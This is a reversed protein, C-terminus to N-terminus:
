TRQSQLLADRARQIEDKPAGSLHLARLRFVRDETDEAPTSVLWQCVQAVRKDARQRQEDTAFSKLGRLAVFSTTFPSQETPPRHAGSKWHNSDHQYLLLYEAVAATTEDPKWGGRDLTWLAYGATDAQGGTGKGELYRSKNKGLFEAIFELQTKLHGED